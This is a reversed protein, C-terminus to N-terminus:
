RRRAGRTSAQSMAFSATKDIQQKIVGKLDAFEDKLASV